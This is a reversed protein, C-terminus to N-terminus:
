GLPLKQELEAIETDTMPPIQPTIQPEFEDDYDYGYGYDSCENYAKESGALGGIISTRAQVTNELMRRLSSSNHQHVQPLLASPCLMHSAAACKGTALCARVLMIDVIINPPLAELWTRADLDAATRYCCVAKPNLAHTVPHAAPQTKCRPVNRPVFISNCM